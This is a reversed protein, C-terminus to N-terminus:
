LRWIEACDNTDKLDELYLFDDDDLRLPVFNTEKKQGKSRDKKKLRTM